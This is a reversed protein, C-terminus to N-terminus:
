ILYLPDDEGRGEEMWRRETVREEFGQGYVKSM